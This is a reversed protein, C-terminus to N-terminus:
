ENKDSPETIQNIPVEKEEIEKITDQQGEQNSQHSLNSLYMTIEQASQFALAQFEQFLNHYEIGIAYYEDLLSTDTLIGTKGDHRKKINVLRESFVKSDNIATLVIKNFVQDAQGANTVLIHNDGVARSFEYIGQALTNYLDTVTEWSLPEVLENEDKIQQKMTEIGQTIPTKHITSTNKARDIIRQRAEVKSKMTAMKRKHLSHIGTKRRM